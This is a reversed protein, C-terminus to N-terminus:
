LENILRENLAVVRRALRSARDRDIDGPQELLGSLDAMLEEYDTRVPDPLGSNGSLQRLENQYVKRLRQEITGVDAGLTNVAASLYRRITTADMKDDPRLGSGSFSAAPSNANLSARSVRRVYTPLRVSGVIPLLNRGRAPFFSCVREPLKDLHM